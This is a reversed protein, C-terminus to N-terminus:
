GGLGWLMKAAVALLVAGFMRELVVGPVKESALRSGVQSGLLVALAAPLLLHGALHGVVVHSAFGSATSFVVALSSTAVATRADYGMGLLVPVLFVGGGVGLLGAALGVGSGVLLGLYLRRRVGRRPTPLHRQPHLLSRLGAAVLVLSFLLLLARTPLLTTLLAGVPATALAAAAMSLGMPYDPLRHRHYTWTASASTLVGLFLSTPIVAEKFDYGFWLLVPNYLLAGGLGIMSFLLAVLGLIVVLAAV